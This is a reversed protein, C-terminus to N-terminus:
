GALAQGHGLDRRELLALDSQERLCPRRRRGPDFEYAAARLIQPDSGHENEYDTEIMVVPLRHEARVRGEVEAFVDGYTYANDLTFWPAEAWVDSTLTGPSGHVTQLADPDGTALTKAMVDVLSMDPVDYDGGHTWFLNQLPGFRAVLFAAYDRLQEPGAAVMEQYWGDVDGFLGAYAPALLVAFGMDEAKELFWAAHDFYAPNRLDFRGPELFPEDGDENAPAHTSFRHEILNVLLTNFGRARRDALYLEAEERTLEVIASWAADGVVLFPRGDADVLHSGDPAASIPFRPVPWGAAAAAPTSVLPIAAALCLVHAGIMRRTRRALRDAADDPALPSRTM